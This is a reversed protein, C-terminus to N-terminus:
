PFTCSNSVTAWETGTWILLLYEDAADFRAVESDATEHSAITLDANNGATSMTILKFQGIDALGGGCDALTLALAGDASNVDSVATTTLASNSYIMEIAPVFEAVGTIGKSADLVVAKSAVATGATAGDTANLEAASSTVQTGAIKLAGGSEVDLDGGSEVDLSGGIVWRAGGQERYNSVSAAFCVAVITLVLLVTLATLLRKM